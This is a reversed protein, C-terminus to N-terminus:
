RDTHLLQNRSRNRLSSSPLRWGPEQIFFVIENSSIAILNIGAQACRRPRAAQKRWELGFRARGASLITGHFLRRVEARMMM